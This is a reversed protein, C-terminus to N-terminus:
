FSPLANSRQQYRIDNNTINRFLDLIGKATSQLESISCYVNPFLNLTITRNAFDQEAISPARNKKRLPVIISHIARAPPTLKAKKGKNKITAM